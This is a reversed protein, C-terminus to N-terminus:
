NDVNALPEYSLLKFVNFDWHKRIWEFRLTEIKFYKHFFIHSTPKSIM